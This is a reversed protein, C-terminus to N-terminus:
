VKCFWFFGKSFGLDAVACLLTGRIRCLTSQIWRKLMYMAMIKCDFGFPYCVQYAVLADSNPGWLKAMIASPNKIVMSEVQLCWRRAGLLPGCNVDGDPIHCEWVPCDFTVWSLAKVEAGRRKIIGLMWRMLVLLLIDMQRVAGITAYLRIAWM